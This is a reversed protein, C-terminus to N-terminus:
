ENEIRRREIALGVAKFACLAIVPISIVFMLNVVLDNNLIALIPEGRGGFRAHLALGLMVLPIADILGLRTFAKEIEKTREEKGMPM